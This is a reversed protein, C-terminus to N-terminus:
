SQGGATLHKQEERYLWSKNLAELTFGKRMARGNVASKTRGIRKGIEAHTMGSLVGERLIRDERETWDGNDVIAVPAPKATLGDRRAAYHKAMRTKGARMAEEAWLNCFRWMTTDNRSLGEPPSVLTATRALTETERTM